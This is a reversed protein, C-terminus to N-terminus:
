PRASTSARWGISTRAARSWFPVSPQAPHGPSPRVGRKELWLAVLDRGLLRGLREIEPAFEAELRRRLAPDMPPRPEHSMNWKTAWLILRQVWERSSRRLIKWSRCSPNHLAHQLAVSKIRKNPNIISFEPVFSPDVDLFMLLERYVGAPDRKLDDYLIVHVRDPGFAALYREVQESFTAVARYFYIADPMYGRCPLRRGRHRAPEAALARDFRAIDEIAQYLFESHLGYMMEVPNRLMAVIRAQPQAARIARAAETSYLAWICTEGVRHAGGADCFLAAHTEPSLTAPLALDSGFFHLEKQEPLFVEPHQRLFAHMATTGCKPAGVLFFDPLTM